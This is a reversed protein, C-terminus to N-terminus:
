NNDSDSCSDEVLADLDMVKPIGHRFLLVTHGVNQAIHAGLMAAIRSGLQKALKKKQVAKNLRLNVIEEKWLTADLEEMWRAPLILDNTEEENKAKAARSNWSMQKLTNDNKKRGAIQRLCRRHTGTIHAYSQDDYDRPTIRKVFIDVIKGCGEDDVLDVNIGADELVKCGGGDVRPNPDQYGVVVRDVQALCLSSACPPTRGYHCCPELTVYATIPVDAFCDGFLQQPGSGDGEGTHVGTYIDILRQLDEGNISSSNSNSNSNSSTTTVSKAEMVSRAAEVGSKVHGAAELLAFVEAHPYGARPHFGAGVVDGTDQRVIVCGVAPNPFTKRLGFKAYDLAQNLFIRDESSIIITESNIKNEDVHSEKTSRLRTIERKLTHQRRITSSVAASGFSSIRTDQHHIMDSNFYNNSTISVRMKHHNEIVPLLWSYTHRCSLSLMTVLSMATFVESAQLIRTM